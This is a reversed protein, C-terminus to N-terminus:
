FLVIQNIRAGSLSQGTDLEHRFSKSAGPEIDRVEISMTDAPETTGGAYLDVSIRAGRIHKGATNVLTGHVVQDGNGERILRFDEIVADRPEPEGCGTMLLGIAVLLLITTAATSGFHNFLQPM